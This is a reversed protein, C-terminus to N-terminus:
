VVTITPITSGGTVVTTYRLDLGSTDTLLVATSNRFTATCSSSLNTNLTQDVARNSLDLIGSSNNYTGNVTGSVTVLCSPSLTILCTMGVRVATTGASTTATASWNGVLCAVTVRVGAISCTSGTAPFRPTFNTSFTVPLASSASGLDATANENACTVFTTGIAMKSGATATATVNEPDSPGITATAASAASATALGLAAPVLALAALRKLKLTM